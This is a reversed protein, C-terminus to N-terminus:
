ESSFREPVRLTLEYRFLDLLSKERTSKQPMGRSLPGRPALGSRLASWDESDEFGVLERGVPCSEYVLVGAVVPVVSVGEV